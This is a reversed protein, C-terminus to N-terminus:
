TKKKFLDQFFNSQWILLIVEDPLTQLLAERLIDKSNKIAHIVFSAPVTLNGSNNLKIYDNFPPEIAVNFHETMPSFTSNFASTSQSPEQQEDVFNFASTSQSPEKQEDVFNFSPNFQSLFTSISQPEMENAYTRLHQIDDLIVRPQGNTRINDLMVRPQGNPADKYARDSFNIIINIYM